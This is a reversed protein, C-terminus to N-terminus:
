LIQIFKNNYKKIKLIVQFLNLDTVLVILHNINQIMFQNSILNGKKIIQWEGLFSFYFDM